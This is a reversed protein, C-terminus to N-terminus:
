KNKNKRLKRRLFGTGSLSLLGMMLGFGVMATASGTGCANAVTFGNAITAQGNDPNTVTVNYPGAASFFLGFSATIETSSVVVVNTAAITATGNDLKLTAGELFGEGQVDVSVSFDLTTGTNPTISTLKVQGAPPTNMTFSLTNSAGGATTVGVQVVGSPQWPAKCTIGTDSWSSYTSVDVSGFSV